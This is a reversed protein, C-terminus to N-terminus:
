VNITRYLFLELLLCKLVYYMISLYISLKYLANPFLLIYYTSPLLLSLHHNFHM